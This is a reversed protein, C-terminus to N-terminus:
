SAYISPSMDCSQVSLHHLLHVPAYLCTSMCYLVHLLALCFSEGSVLDDAPRPRKRLNAVLSAGQERTQLKRLNALMNLDFGYNLYLDLM